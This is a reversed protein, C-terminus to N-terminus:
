LSIKEHLESLENLLANVELNGVPFGLLCCDIIVKRFTAAQHYLLQMAPTMM